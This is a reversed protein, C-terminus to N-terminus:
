ASELFVATHVMGGSCAFRCTVRLPSSELLLASAARLTVSGESWEIDTVEAEDFDVFRGVFPHIAKYFAEKASFILTAPLANTARRTWAEKEARTCCTAEIARRSASTAITESDIGIGVLGTKASVVACALHENHTISGVIGTPWVPEGRAGVRVSRTPVFKQLAQEACIRGCVFAARRTLVSRQIFPPLVWPPVLEVVRIVDRIRLSCGATGGLLPQPAPALYSLAHAADGPHSDLLWASLSRRGDTPACAERGQETSTAM